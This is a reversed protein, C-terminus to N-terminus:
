PENEHFDHRDSPPAAGRTVQPRLRQGRRPVSAVFFVPDPSSVIAGGPRHRLGLPQPPTGQSLGRRADACRRTIPVTGQRAAPVPDALLPAAVGVIMAAFAFRTCHTM